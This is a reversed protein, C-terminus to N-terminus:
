VQPEMGEIGLTLDARVETLDAWSEFPDNDQSNGEGKLLLAEYANKAEDGGFFESNKELHKKM